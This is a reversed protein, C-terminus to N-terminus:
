IDHAKKALYRAKRKYIAFLSGILLIWFINIHVGQYQINKKFQVDGGQGWDGGYVYPYYSLLLWTLFPWAIIAMRKLYPVFVFLNLLYWAHLENTIWLYLILGIVGLFASGTLVDITLARRMLKLAPPVRHKWNDVFQGMLLGMPILVLPLTFYKTLGSLLMLILSLWLKNKHAFYIGILALWVSVFDNHTNMLGEILIIPSTIFVVAAARDLKAILRASHIFIFVQCLKFLVFTMGFKGMGVLSPIISLLLFTPGYPYTRHIWHM